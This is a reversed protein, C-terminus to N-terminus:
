TDPSMNQCNQTRLGAFHGWAATHLHESHESCVWGGAAWRVERWCSTFWLSSFLLLTSSLTLASVDSTFSRSACSRVTKLLLLALSTVWLVWSDELSDTLTPRSCMYRRNVRSRRWSLRLIWKRRECTGNMHEPPGM